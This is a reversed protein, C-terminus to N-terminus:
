SIVTAIFGNDYRLIFVDVKIIKETGNEIDASSPLGSHVKCKSKETPKAGQPRLNAGSLNTQKPLDEQL